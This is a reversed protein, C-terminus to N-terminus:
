YTAPWRLITTWGGGERGCVTAAGGVTAMHNAVVALGLGLHGGGSRGRRSLLASQPDDHGPGNDSVECWRWSQDAGFQVLVWRGPLPNTDGARVSAKHAELANRVVNDLCQTWTAEDMAAPGPLDGPMRVSIALMKAEDAISPRWDALSFPRVMARSPLTRLPRELITRPRSLERRLPALLDELEPHDVVVLDLTSIASVLSNNIDHALKRVIAISLDVAERPLPAVAEPHLKM